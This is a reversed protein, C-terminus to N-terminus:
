EEVEKGKGAVRQGNGRRREAIKFRERVRQRESREGNEREEKRSRQLKGAFM